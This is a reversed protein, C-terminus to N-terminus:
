RFKTGPVIVAVFQRPYPQGPRYAEWLIRNLEGWDARDVKSFDLRASRRALETKAPNKENLDVLPAALDYPGFNPAGAFAAHMPTAKQDYQSMPPLGL